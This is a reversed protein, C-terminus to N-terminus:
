NKLRSLLRGGSGDNNERRVISQRISSLVLRALSGDRAKDVRAKM